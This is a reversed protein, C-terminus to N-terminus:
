VRVKELAAIIEHHPRSRNLADAVRELREPVTIVFRGVADDSSTAAATLERGAFLSLVGALAKALLIDAPGGPPNRRVEAVVIGQQGRSLDLTVAGPAFRPLGAGARNAWDIRGFWDALSNPGNSETPPVVDPRQREAGRDKPPLVRPGGIEGLLASIRDTEAVALPSPTM